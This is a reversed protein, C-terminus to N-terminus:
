VPLKKAQWDHQAITRGDFLSLLLMLGFMVPLVIPLPYTM